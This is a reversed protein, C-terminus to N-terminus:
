CSWEICDITFEVVAMGSVSKSLITGLESVEDSADELASEAADVSALAAVVESSVVVM